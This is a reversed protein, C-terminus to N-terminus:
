SVGSGSVVWYDTGVMIFTAVGGTAITAGTNTTSGNVYLSVGGGRTITLAGSTPGNIVTVTSGSTFLNTAVNNIGLIHPTGSAHYLISPTTTDSLNVSDDALFQRVTYKYFRSDNGAAASGALTGVNRTAVDGLGLTTRMDAMSADNILTRGANSLVSSDISWTGGNATVVIDGKDGDAVPGGPAGTDGKDGKIGAVVDILRVPDNDNLPAPINLIRFGNMDLDDAMSNPLAGNRSLVTDSFQEIKANNENIAAVASEQNTLSTLDTLTLKSM